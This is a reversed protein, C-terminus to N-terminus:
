TTGHRCFSTYLQKKSISYKSMLLNKVLITSFCSSLMPFSSLLPSKNDPRQFKLTARCLHKAVGDAKPKEQVKNEQNM